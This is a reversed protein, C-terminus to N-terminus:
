NLGKLYDIFEMAQLKTLKAIADTKYRNRLINQVEVKIGKTDILKEILGVQAETILNSENSKPPTGNGKRAQSVTKNQNSKQNSQSTNTDNDLDDKGDSIGFLGCLAYKRAYSSTAGTIQGASMGALSQPERAYAKTSVKEGDVSVITAEAEIYTSDGMTILNDNLLIICNQEELLPKLNNLIDEASRYFYKSHTNQSDKPSVLNKQIEMIKIYINKEEM